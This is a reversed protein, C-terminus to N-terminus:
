TITDPFVAFPEHHARREPDALWDSTFRTRKGARADVIGCFHKVAWLPHNGFCEPLFSLLSQVRLVVIHYLNVGRCVVQANSLFDISPSRLFFKEVSPPGSEIFSATEDLQGSALRSAFALGHNLSKM